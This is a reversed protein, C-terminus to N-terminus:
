DGKNFVGNLKKWGSKAWGKTRSAADKTARRGVRTAESVASRLLGLGSRRRNRRVRQFRPMPPMPALVDDSDDDECESARAGCRSVLPLPSWHHIGSFDAWPDSSSQSPCLDPSEITAVDSRGLTTNSAATSVMWTCPTDPLAFRVRHNGRQGVRRICSQPAGVASDTPQDDSNSSVAPQLTSPSINDGEPASSDDSRVIAGADGSAVEIIRQDELGLALGSYLSSVTPITPVMHVVVPQLVNTTINEQHALQVNALPRLLTTHFFACLISRSQLPRIDVVTVVSPTRRPGLVLLKVIVKWLLTASTPSRSATIIQSSSPIPSGHLLEYEEEITMEGFIEEDSREPALGTLDPQQQRAADSEYIDAGFEDDVDEDSGAVSTPPTSTDQSGGSSCSSPGSITSTTSESSGGRNHGPDEEADLSGDGILAGASGIQETTPEVLITPTSSPFVARPRATNDEASDRMPQSSTAQVPISDTMETSSSEAAVAVLEVAEEEVEDAWDGLTEDGLDALRRLFAERETLPDEDYEDEEEEDAWTALPPGFADLRRHLEERSMDTNQTSPSQSAPVFEAPVAPANTGQVDSPRVSGHQPYVNRCVVADPLYDVDDFSICCESLRSKVPGRAIRSKMAAQRAKDMALQEETGASLIDTRSPFGPTCGNIITQGDPYTKPDLRDIHPEHESEDYDDELWLGVGAYFNVCQGICATELATGRLSNLLDPNGYYMVPDLLRSAKTVVFHNQSKFPDHKAIWKSSTKLVAITTAPNTASKTYVVEGFFNVHHVWDKSKTWWQEGKEWFPRPEHTPSMGTPVPSNYDFGDSCDVIWALRREFTREPRSAQAGEQTEPPTHLPSEPSCAQSPESLQQFGELSSTSSARPVFMPARPNLIQRQNHEWIGPLFEVAHPNM